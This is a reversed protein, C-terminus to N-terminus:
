FLSNQEISRFAIQFVPPLPTGKPHMQRFRQVCDRVLPAWNAKTVTNFFRFNHMSKLDNILQGRTGKGHKEEYRHSLYDIMAKLQEQQDANINDTSDGASIAIELQGVKERLDKVEGEMLNVRNALQSAEEIKDYFQKKDKDIYPDDEARMEAPLLRRGFYAYIVDSLEKQLVILKARMENNPVTEPSILALWTHLRTLKIAPLELRVTRGEANVIPFPILFLGDELLHSSRIRVIEDEASIGIIECIPQIVIFATLQGPEGGFACPVDQGEFNVSGFQDVAFHPIPKPENV